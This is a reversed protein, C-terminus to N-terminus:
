RKRKSGSLVQDIMRRIAEPRSPEDDQQAAWEDLAALAQPHLRVLVPTGIGTPAPGPKKKPTKSILSQRAMAVRIDSVLRGM